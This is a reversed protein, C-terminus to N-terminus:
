VRERCSARGIQYGKVIGTADCEVIVKLDIGLQVSTNIERKFRQRNDENGFTGFLDGKSKRDFYISSPYYYLRGRKEAKYIVAYDGVHLKYRHTTEIDRYRSFNLPKQERTDAILIYSLKAM